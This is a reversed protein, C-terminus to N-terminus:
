REFDYLALIILVNWLPLTQGLRWTEESFSLPVALIVAGVVAQMMNRVGFKTKVPEMTKEFAVEEKPKIKRKVVEGKPNTQGKTVSKKQPEIM